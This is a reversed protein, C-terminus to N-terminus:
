DEMKLKRTAASYELMQRALDLPYSVKVDVMQGKADTVPELKPMVFATYAPLDLHRVRNQIEDRLRIDVNLGYTDVLDKAAAFDGEAKIRMIEALLRGYVAHLSDYNVIHYYTKGDRQEVNIAHSNALAYHVILQRDKLHDEELQTSSGIRWLQSLAVRVSAQYLTEGLTRADAQDRAIGIEVLKPDWANWYAVLDARAEELTNYYGPLFVSPDKGGLKPSAKGSGHGIVEHLATLLDEARAGYHEDNQVEQEDWALEKVLEKGTSNNYAEVVNHLLVSKTGYQERISEENPLNIGIPMIPGTGGTGIVVDVSNAIPSRDIKKKYEDKWPARDEFYQAYGALGRMMKTQTPDMFHISSEFEAKQGRPDLYVEIFGHIFDVSSSDKVWVVNFKRFDEPDGTQYYRVLQRIVDAQHASGAYPIAKELYQIAANLYAAYMGPNISGTGTRWVEEFLKGDQKGVTSNLPHKENGAKAWRDVEPYTLGRAYYNVSSGKIWDHGPTKDTLVSDVNPEFMVPRLRELRSDLAQGKEAIAAGAAQAARVANAFQDFTCDLVFKRSTLYDYFGNNIWFMKAYQVIKDKVAPDLGDAHTYVEEIIDRVELALPHHQDISIDRAAISALSLYYAFVRDQQSLQDFGDAYLQVVNATGVRELKYKREQTTSDPVGNQSRHNQSCSTAFLCLGSAILTMLLNWFKNM